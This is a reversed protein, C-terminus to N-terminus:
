HWQCWNGECDSFVMFLGSFFTAKDDLEEDTAMDMGKAFREKKIVWSIEDNPLRQVM